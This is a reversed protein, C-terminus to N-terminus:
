SGAPRRRPLDGAAARQHRLRALVARDVMAREADPVEGFHVAASHHEEDVRTVVGRIRVTSGAGLDLKMDVETGMKLSSGVPMEVRCGTSSLDSTRSALPTGGDQPDLEVPRRLAGRVAARRPEAAVVEAHALVMENPSGSERAIAELWLLTGTEPDRTCAWILEGDMQPLDPGRVTLQGNPDSGPVDDWADIQGTWVGTGSSTLITVPAAQQAPQGPMARSTDPATM